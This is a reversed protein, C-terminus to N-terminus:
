SFPDNKHVRKYTNKCRECFLPQLTVVKKKFVCIDIGKRLAVADFILM